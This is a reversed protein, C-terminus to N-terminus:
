NNCGYFSYKGGSDNGIYPMNELLNGNKISILIKKTLDPVDARELAEDVSIWVAESNEDGDSHAEGSVYEATFVAYWDKENFRIGALKDPRVTVGTEEFVERVVADQPSEGIKVYGGPIILRGKGAGYTHRVLLVRGDRIVAGAVSKGWDTNIEESM